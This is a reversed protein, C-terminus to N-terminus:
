HLLFFFNLIIFIFYYSYAYIFCVIKTVFWNFHEVSIKLVYLSLVLDKLTNDKIKGTNEEENFWNFM